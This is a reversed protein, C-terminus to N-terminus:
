AEAQAIQDRTQSEQLRLAAQSEQVQSEVGEATYSYFEREQRLEDPALVAIIQDKAVIDGEAVLLRDIRGAIQPSVVVEHTTVIGTLVLADPPRNTYWYVGTGIAVLLLLVVLRRKM